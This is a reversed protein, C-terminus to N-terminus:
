GLVNFLEGELPQSRFGDVCSIEAGIVPTVPEVAIRSQGRNAQPATQERVAVATNSM